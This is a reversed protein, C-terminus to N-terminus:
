YFRVGFTGQLWANKYRPTSSSGDGHNQIGDWGVRAGLVVHHINLDFGAVFGLINKRVNDNQFEQEQAISTTANAFVDRQHLLYSFQPGALLTLFEAPKIALFLPVDLFSTTRSLDYNGGLVKGRGRFGKQSFLVEPQIGLYKGIPIALFVGGAFGVKADTRFEEGRTDYVNSVNGGAKIGLMLKERLSTVETDQAFGSMAASLLLAIYLTLQKM